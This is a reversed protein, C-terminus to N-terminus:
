VECKRLVVNARIKQRRFLSQFGLKYISEGSSVIFDRRDLGVNERKFSINGSSTAGLFLEASSTDNAAKFCQPLRLM